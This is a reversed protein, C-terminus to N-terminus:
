VIVFLVVVVILNPTGEVGISINWPGVGNCEDALNYM